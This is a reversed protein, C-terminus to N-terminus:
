PRLFILIALAAFLLAAVIRVARVPLRGAFRAGLWVAPVDAILMGTTTGAVVLWLPHYEAAIVATAIQTKDGIEALFFSLTTALLVRHGTGRAADSEDAHDPILTWAAVCLFSSAVIWRLVQPSLLHAVLAGLAGALAHNALTALLIGFCIPWPRRYKAALILALLQTKDGLEAVAVSLTSILFTEM